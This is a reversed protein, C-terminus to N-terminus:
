SVRSDREVARSRRHDGSDEPKEFSKKLAFRVTQAVTRGNKEADKRLADLLDPTLRVVVQNTLKEKM